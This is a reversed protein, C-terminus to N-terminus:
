DEEFEDERTEMLFQGNPLEYNDCQTKPVTKVVFPITYGLSEGYEDLYTQQCGKCLCKIKRKVPAICFYGYGSCDDFEGCYDNPYYAPLEDESITRKNVRANGSKNYDIFYVCEVEEIGGDMDIAYLKNNTIDRFVTWEDYRVVSYLTDPNFPCDKPLEVPELGEAMLQGLTKYPTEVRCVRQLLEKKTMTKM